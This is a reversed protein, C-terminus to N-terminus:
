SNHLLVYTAQLRTFVLRTPSYRSPRARFTLDPQTDGQAFKQMPSRSGHPHVRPVHWVSTHLTKFKFSFLPHRM